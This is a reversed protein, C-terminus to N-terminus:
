RRLQAYVERTVSSDADNIIYIQGGSTIVLFPPDQPQICLRANGYDRVSFLGKYLNDFNAGNLRVATQIEDVLEISQISDLPIVYLDHTHRATLETESLILRSPVGEEVWMWVGIFPMAVICLAAFVMLVKGGAKALNVTMNMGVRANVMFSNDNPNYYFIGWIWYDDEDAYLRSTEGSTLNQQATRVGFEVYLAVAILLLSYVLTLILIATINDEFLSVLPSLVGTAWTAILWFKGWKYRRVRRLAMTLTLNENFVDPRACFILYYCLWFFITTAAFTIYVAAFAREVGPILFIPVPFLSIIIPPLFWLGNIKRAPISSAKIDALTKGSAESYWNRERKLAILKGRHYAFVAFPAIILALLWTMYFTMAAGMSTMLFPPILLPLLPLMVINLWKKFAGCIEQTEPNDHASQPLTAGLIINKKPKVYNRTLFYLIPWIPVFCAAMIINFITM